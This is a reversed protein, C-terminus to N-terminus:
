PRALNQPHSSFARQFFRFQDPFVGAALALFGEELNKGDPAYYGSEGNEAQFYLARHPTGQNVFEVALM